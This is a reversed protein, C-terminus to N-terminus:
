PNQPALTPVPKLMRAGPLPLAPKLKEEFKLVSARVEQCVPTQAQQPTACGDADFVQTAKFYDEVTMAKQEENGDMFKKNLSYDYGVHTGLLNNVIHGPRMRLDALWRQGPTSTQFRWVHTLEHLLIKKNDASVNAASLDPRHLEDKELYVDNGFSKADEGEAPANHLRIRSYDAADGFIARAMKIEGQTMARGAPDAAKLHSDVWGEKAASAFVTALVLGIAAGALKRMPKKM